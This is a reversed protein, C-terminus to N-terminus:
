KTAAPSSIGEGFVGSARLVEIEASSYGVEALVEATNIGLETGTHKYNIQSRSFKYPSGIQPQATGDPKPVGVVMQRAETQPHDVMEEVTLVPEVCVDVQDFIARWEELSRTVIVAQIDAKLSQQAQPSRDAGREIWAPQEIAQCFGQWFKPELSGVSLYRGDGCRYIDYFGGGNLWETEAEPNQGGVLFQATALANWAVSIDFLGIDVFQGVGSKTREIVAALIGTITGFSGGLDAALISFPAPGSAQRGSHSMVGALSLYNLDHGARDRYPGNQGYGTVACYILAPNVAQLAEYGVGLRDMVGPRFQELVIDYQQVLRKVVEVADPRKLDLAISRKSRNLLGHWASVEGDFPPTARMMDPRHPAEVRVVDAGLDALIMSAFPGPVLTSFDLIKLSALPGNNVARDTEETMM